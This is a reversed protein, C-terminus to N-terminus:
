DCQGFKYGIGLLFSTVTLKSTYYRDKNMDTVVATKRMDANIYFRSHLKISARAGIHLAHLNETRALDFTSPLNKIRGVWGYSYGTLLSMSSYRKIPFLKLTVALPIENYRSSYTDSWSYGPLYQSNDINRVLLVQEVGSSRFGMEIASRPFWDYTLSIEFSTRLDGTLEKGTHGSGIYESQSTGSKIQVGLFDKLKPTFM